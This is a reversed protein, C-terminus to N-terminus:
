HRTLRRFVELSRGWFLCLSGGSQSSDVLSRACGQCGQSQGRGLDVVWMRIGCCHGKVHRPSPCASLTATFFLLISYFSFFLLNFLKGLLNLQMLQAALM